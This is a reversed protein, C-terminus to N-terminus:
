QATDGIDILGKAKLGEEVELRALTELAEIIEAPKKALSGIREYTMGHIRGRLIERLIRAIEKRSYFSSIDGTIKYFVKEGHSTISDLANIANLLYAARSGPSSVSIKAEKNIQALVGTKFKGNALNEKLERLKGAAENFSLKKEM